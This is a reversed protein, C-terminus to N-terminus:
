HMLDELYDKQVVIDSHSIDSLSYKMGHGRGSQVPFVYGVAGFYVADDNLLFPIPTHPIIFEYQDHAHSFAFM